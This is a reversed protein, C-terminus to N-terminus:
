SRASPLNKHCCSLEPYLAGLSPPHLASDAAKAESMVLDQALGPGTVDLHPQERYLVKGKTCFMSEKWIVGEMGIMLQFSI